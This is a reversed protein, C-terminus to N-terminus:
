SYASGQNENRWLESLDNAKSRLESAHRSATDQLDTVHAELADISDQSFRAGAKSYPSYFADRRRKNELWQQEGKSQNEEYEQERLRRTAIDRLERDTPQKAREKEYIENFTMPKTRGYKRLKEEKRLRKAEEKRQKEQKQEEVLKYLGNELSVLDQNTVYTM